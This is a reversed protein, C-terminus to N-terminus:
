HWQIGKTLTFLDTKLGNALRLLNIFSINRQGRELLSIYTRDFGCIFALAEQSLNLENRINKINKGLHLLIETQNLKNM